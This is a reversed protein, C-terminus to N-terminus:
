CSYFQMFMEIRKGLIIKDMCQMQWEETRNCVALAMVLIGLYTFLM